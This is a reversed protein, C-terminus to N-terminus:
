LYIVGTSSTKDAVEGKSWTVYIQRCPIGMKKYGEPYLGTAVITEPGIKELDVKRGFEFRVGADMAMAFLHSDISTPKAGREICYATNHKIYPPLKLLKKNYYFMPYPNCQVFDNQLDIGVYDWLQSLQAPTTHVSPHFDPSGGVDDGADFVTVKYGEGALVVAATMGSLGAGVIKVEKM